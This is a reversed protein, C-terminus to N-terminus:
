ALFARARQTTPSYSMKLRIVSAGQARLREADRKAYQPVLLLRPSAAANPDLQQRGAVTFRSMSVV